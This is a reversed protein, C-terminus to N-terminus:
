KATKNQKIKSIAQMAQFKSLGKTDIGRSKLLFIQKMTAPEENLARRKKNKQTIIERIKLSAQGKTLSEDWAKQDELYARQGPSPSEDARMWAAEKLDCFGVKLNRRAFDECVGSCYELPIPNSVVSKKSGDPYYLIATFGSGESRMVIERKEDDLLSWENGGLAVWVFRCAGLIDFERDVSNYIDVKIARDVEERDGKEGEEEKVILAEPIASSLSMATELRHGRDSFDLVLCNEKGPWLRLGRGVCQIYLGSSQTPRAMVIADVSPEDFGEVLIGCSIAVQIRGKKLDDLVQKRGAPEMDGWVAAAAIGENRFAEELNKCHDVNCCFAIGKRDSAYEKFKNVVFNNREPTDVIEALENIAFDGSSSRVGDLAFSTLIQRGSVGSLYGAKIMTSISRSFVIKEFTNGLGHKDSRQPTATVGVLLRDKNGPVFELSDIVSQYSNSVCHHAEDIMLIEFGQAKLRELRKPRSCSQVSGVVIQCHIEDRDGMCIGIDVGPWFLQFKEITQTILEERHALILTRKNFEKAIAAMLITKGSGTPLVILQANIGSKFESLVTEVCENQYDRLQIVCTM